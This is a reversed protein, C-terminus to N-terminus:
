RRISARPARSREFWLYDSDTILFFYFQTFRNWMSSEYNILCMIKRTRPRLLMIERKM